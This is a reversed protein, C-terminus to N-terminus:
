FYIRGHHMWCIPGECFRSLYWHQFGQYRWSRVGITFSLEKCINDAVTGIFILM